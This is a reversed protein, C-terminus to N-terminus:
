FLSYFRTAAKAPMRLWRRRHRRLPRRAHPQMCFKTASRSCLADSWWVPPTSRSRASTCHSGFATDAAARAGECDRGRQAPAAPSYCYWYQAAAAPQRPIVAKTALCVSRCRVSMSADIAGSRQCLAAVRKCIPQSLYRTRNCGCPPPRRREARMSSRVRQPLRPQSPLDQPRSGDPDLRSTYKCNAYKLYQIRVCLPSPLM